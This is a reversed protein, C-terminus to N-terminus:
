RDRTADVSSHAAIDHNEDVLWLHLRSARDDEPLDASLKIPGFLEFPEVKVVSVLEGDSRDRSSSGVADWGYILEGALQDSGHHSIWVEFTLSGTSTRVDAGPAIPMIDCIIVTDAHSDASDLGLDDKKTRDFALLGAMEHEIDYLETYVYGNNDAMRRLEQTQWRMVWAREVSTGGTGYESNMRPNPGPTIKGALLHKRQMRHDLDVTFGTDRDEAIWALDTNWTSQDPAYIHWDVLDTRVHEWGSNDIVPRTPDLDTALQYADALVRQKEPDDHVDWDLGWEENYLGWIIISPHNGDRTIMPQIQDAFARVAPQSYRGTSAPEEWILMGIRDAHHLWRPDELKLHKRVLNFGLRHAQDLDSRLHGTSPATWGHGPWYGQDLVGRLFVRRDNLYLHRGRIEIKRLGSVAVLRDIIKGDRHLEAAVQYLYPDAPSWQRPRDIILKARGEDGA